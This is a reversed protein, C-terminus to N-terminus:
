AALPEGYQEVVQYLSDLDLPKDIVAAVKAQVGTRSGVASVVVVPIAALKEDTERADLFEWGSMVPMMLDLLILQPRAETARLLELADRGNCAAHVTYGVYELSAKLVERISSDDEVVLVSINKCQM